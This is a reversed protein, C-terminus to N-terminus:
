LCHNERRTVGPKEGSQYAPPPFKGSNFPPVLKGNGGNGVVKWRINWIYKRGVPFWIQQNGWTLTPLCHIWWDIPRFCRPPDCWWRPPYFICCGASVANCQVALEGLAISQVAKFHNEKRQRHFAISVISLLPVVDSQAEGWSDPNDSQQLGIFIRKTYVSM